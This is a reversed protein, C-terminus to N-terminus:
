NIKVLSGSIETIASSKVTTKAGEVEMTADAKISISPASMSISKGAKLNMDQAAEITIGSQEMVIKNGYPDQITIKGADDDLEILRNGPTELSFKKKGDDYLM